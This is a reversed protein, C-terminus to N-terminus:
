WHLEMMSCNLGSGIGMLGLRYGPKILGRETAIALTLPVSAPGVNGLFPYTVFSRAQDLQFLEFLSRFHKAGVQHGIIFDVNASTWGFFKHALEWTRRALALGAELLPRCQVTMQERSGLCLGSHATDALSVHGVLRHGKKALSQHTLVVAVAGSGLTLSAFNLSFDSIQTDPQLLRQITAEVVERSSEADVVLAAKIRGADILDALLAIGNLFGLCANGVDLNLCNSSLGLRGHIMSAMSPEIYDKCVSTSVIAGIDGIALGSDDIAQQAVRAAADVLTTGEPWFRREDVGAAAMLPKAPIGLRDLTPRLRELISQSSVICPPLEYAISELYVNRNLM